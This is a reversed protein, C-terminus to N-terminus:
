RSCPGRIQTGNLAELIGAKGIQSPTKQVTLVYGVGGNWTALGLYGFDTEAFLTLSCNATKIPQVKLGVKSSLYDIIQQNTAGKLAPFHVLFPEAMMSLPSLNAGEASNTDPEPASLLTASGDSYSLLAMQFDQPIASSYGAIPDGFQNNGIRGIPYAGELSLACGLLILKRLMATMSILM